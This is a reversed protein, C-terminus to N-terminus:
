ADLDQVFLMGRPHLGADEITTARENSLERKPYNTSVSFNKVEIQNDFFYIQLFDHITQVTDRKNFRRSLKGGRPLQLRIASVDPASESPEVPLSSRLENIQKEYNLTMSLNLANQLEAEQAKAHAEEERAREEQERRAREREVAERAVRDREMAEAYELDQQARLSTAEARRATTRTQDALVAGFTNLARQLRELLTRETFDGQFTDAIQVITESQPMLLCLFPFTKTKLQYTLAFGEPDYVSGAWMLLNDSIYRSVGPSALIGRCFADTSEHLESHLYILLFKHTQFAQKVASIYSQDFLVPLTNYRLSLNDIFKRTTVDPNHPLRQSSFVWNLFGSSRDLLSGTAANTTRNNDAPPVAPTRRAITENEQRRLEAMDEGHMAYENVCADLDWNHNMLLEVALQQDTIGTVEQFVSLDGRQQESLIDEMGSM